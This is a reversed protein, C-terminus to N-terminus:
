FLLVKSSDFIYSLSIIIKSSNLVFISLFSIFISLLIPSSHDNLLETFPSVETEDIVKDAPSVTLM